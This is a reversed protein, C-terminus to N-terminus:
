GISRMSSIGFTSVTRTGLPPNQPPMPSGGTETTAGAKHLAMKAAVPLRM